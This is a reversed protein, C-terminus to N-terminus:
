RQICECYYSICYVLKKVHERYLSWKIRTEGISASQRGKELKLVSEEEVVM